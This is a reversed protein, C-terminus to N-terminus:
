LISCGCKKYCEDSHVSNSETKLQCIRNWPWFMYVFHCHRCKAIENFGPRSRTPGLTIAGIIIRLTHEHAWQSPMWVLRHYPHRHHAARLQLLPFAQTALEMKQYAGQDEPTSLHVRQSTVSRRSSQIKKTSHALLATSQKLLEPASYFAEADDREKPLISSKVTDTLSRLEIASRTGRLTCTYSWASSLKQKGLPACVAVSM